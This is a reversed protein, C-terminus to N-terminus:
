RRGRKQARLAPSGFRGVGEFVAIEGNRLVRDHVELAAEAM